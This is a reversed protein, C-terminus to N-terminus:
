ALGSISMDTKWQPSIAVIGNMEFDGRYTRKTGSIGAVNASDIVIFDENDDYGIVLFAHSDYVSVSDLSIGYVETMYTVPNANFEMDYLSTIEAGVICIFGLKLAMLLDAKTHTTLQKYTITNLKPMTATLGEHGCIASWYNSDLVGLNTNIAALQTVLDNFSTGQITTVVDFTDINALTTGQAKLYLYASLAHQQSITFNPKSEGATLAAAAAYGVCKGLAFEMSWLQSVPSNYTGISIKDDRNLVMYIFIIALIWIIKM